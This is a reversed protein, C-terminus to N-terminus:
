TVQELFAMARCLPSGNNLLKAQEIQSESFCRLLQEVIDAGELLVPTMNHLLAIYDAAAVLQEGAGDGRARYAAVVDADGLTCVLMGDAAYIGASPASWNGQPVAARAAKLQELKYGSMACGKRSLTTAFSIDKAISTTAAPRYTCAADTQLLTWVHAFGQPEALKAKVEHDTVSRLKGQYETSRPPIESKDSRTNRMPYPRYKLAWKEFTM